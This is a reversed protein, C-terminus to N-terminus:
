AYHHAHHPPHTPNDQCEIEILEEVCSEDLWRRAESRRADLILTLSERVRRRCEDISRGRSISGPVEEVWAVFSGDPRRKIITHFHQKM